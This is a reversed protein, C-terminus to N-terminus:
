SAAPAAESRPEPSVVKVELPEPAPEPPKALGWERMRDINKEDSAFEVFRGPDNEFEARVRAPLSMFMREADAVIQLSSQFDGFVTCDVFQPQGVRASPLVGTREYRKMLVNLDCEDAFEQKTRADKCVLVPRVGNDRAVSSKVVEVSLGISM